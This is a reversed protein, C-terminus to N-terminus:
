VERPNINLRKFFTQLTMAQVIISFLVVGYTLSLILPRNLEPPISLAIAVSIGGRLGGWTMIKVAHPMFKRRYGAIISPIGLSLYRALLSLIIAFLSLVVFKQEFPIILVELGIIVFLLANLVEDITEWFKFTFDPSRAEAARNREKNGLFLGAAVMALPGSFHLAGALAYGGTVLALTLLVETQAHSFNRLLLYVIYGLGLGLFIGGAIEEVLLFAVEGVTVSDVGQRAIQLVTLFVVIGVGDNFLSEGVIKVEMSKPANSQRLIGLVAIPDTPSILAGFLLCHIFPVPYNFWQCLYFLGSAILFSSTIVGVTAFLLIPGKQLKIKSWDAHLAGAFLLYSLMFNLLLESFDIENILALAFELVQPFLTSSLQLVISLALGLIMVGIVLPFRLFRENIYSFVGSLALIIAMITVLNM